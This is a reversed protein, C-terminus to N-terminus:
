GRRSRSIPSVYERLLQEIEADRIMPIGANSGNQARAPVGALTDAAATVLAIARSAPKVPRVKSPPKAPNIPVTDTGREPGLSHVSGTATLM